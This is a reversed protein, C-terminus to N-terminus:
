KTTGALSSIKGIWRSITDQMNTSQVIYTYLYNNEYFWKTVTSSQILENAPIIWTYTGLLRIVALACWVIVLAFGAGLVMGLVKDFFHGVYTGHVIKKILYMILRVVIYAILWLVLFVAALMIYVISVTSLVNAFTTSVAVPTDTSLSPNIVAKATDSGIFKDITSGLPSFRTDKLYAALSDYENAGYSVTLSKDANFTIEVDSAHLEDPLAKQIPQDLAKYLLDDINTKENVFTTVSSALAVALAIAVLSSILGYIMKYMGRWIGFIVFLVFLAVVAVDLILGNM